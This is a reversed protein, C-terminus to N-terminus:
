GFLTTLHHIFQHRVQPELFTQVREHQQAILRQRL